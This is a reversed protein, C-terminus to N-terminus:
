KNGSNSSGAGSSGASTRAADSPGAAFPDADDNRSPPAAVVTAGAAAHTNHTPPSNGHVNQKNRPSPPVSTPPAAAHPKSNNGEHVVQLYTPSQNNHMPMPPSPCPMLPAAPPPPMSDARSEQAPRKPAPSQGEDRVYATPAATHAATHAATAPRKPLFQPYPGAETATAPEPAPTPAPGLLEHLIRQVNEPSLSHVAKESLVFGTAQHPIHAHLPYCWTPARNSMAEQVTGRTLYLNSSNWGQYVNFTGFSSLQQQVARQILRICAARRVGLMTRERRCVLGGATKAAGGALTRLEKLKAAAAQASGMEVLFGGQFKPVQIAAAQVGLQAAVFEKTPPPEQQQQQERSLMIFLKSAAQSYAPTDRTTEMEWKQQQLEKALQQQLKTVSNNTNQETQKCQTQLAALAAQQAHQAQKFAQSLSHTEQAAREQGEFLGDLKATFESSLNSIQTQMQTQMQTSLQSLMLQMSELLDPAPKGESTMSPQGEQLVTYQNSQTSPQQRAQTHFHTRPARATQRGSM